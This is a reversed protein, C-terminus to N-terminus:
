FEVELGDYAAKLPAPLHKDLDAQSGHLTRAMHTLYVPQKKFKPKYRRTDKLVTIFQEVTAVSSHNFIRYDNEHGLGMTAEMIVGTLATGNLHADFKALRAAIGLIGGTDTAYLVRADSGELLYILTQEKLDGTAHNAPLATVVVGSEMYKGGVTVPIIEPVPLGTKQSAERFNKKARELWTEGLYVKKIGLTLADAPNFHDGHSHTYFIVEPAMGAPVMDRSVGTYDILFSDNILVSSLRRQEGNKDPGNWDAAGTGLFRVKIKSATGKLDAGPLVEPAPSSSANAVLPLGAELGAVAVAAAGTKM